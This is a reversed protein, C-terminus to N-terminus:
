NNFMEWNSSAADCWKSLLIRQGRPTPQVFCWFTMTKKDQAKPDCRQIPADTWSFRTQELVSWQSTGSIDQGALGGVSEFYAALDYRCINSISRISLTFFKASHQKSECGRVNVTRWM